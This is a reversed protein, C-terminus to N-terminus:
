RRAGVRVALPASGDGTSRFDGAWQAVFRSTGRGVRWSTTFAGNAATRVTRHQWRTSGPPLMSVTVRENGSAPRLRGTVTITSPRSVRRRPNLTLTSPRGADGGSRSFLLGSEGGLLYDVRDRGAAVGNAPIPAAVVFQPHWTSGGDSTRLLFGSAQRADGFRNFVLYGRTASSFAMGYADSTGVGLLPSWSRGGNRTRFVRGDDGLWFGTRADVFDVTRARFRTKPLRVSRWTRGRDASRFIARPGSAVLSSGAVDISTLNARAVSRNSIAAFADGGDTSRRM